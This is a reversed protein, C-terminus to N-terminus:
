KSHKTNKIICLLSNFLFHNWLNNSISSVTHYLIMTTKKKFVIKRCRLRVM